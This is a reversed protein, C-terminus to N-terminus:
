NHTQRRAKDWQIRTLGCGFPRVGLLILRPLLSPHPLLCNPRSGRSECYCILCVESESHVRFIQDSQTHRRALRRTASHLIDGTVDEFPEVLRAKGLIHCCHHTIRSGESLVLQAALKCLSQSTTCPGDAFGRGCPALPPFSQLRLSDVLHASGTLQRHCDRAGQHRIGMHTVAQRDATHQGRVVRDNRIGHAHVNGAAHFERHQVQRQAFQIPLALLQDFCDFDLRAEPHTGRELLAALM